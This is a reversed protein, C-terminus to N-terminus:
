KESAQKLGRYVYQLGSSVTLLAVTWLMWDEPKVSVKLNISLLIYAILVLQATNAAKGTLSPAIGTISYILSLLAWGVTVIIDRSIVIITLWIPIWGYVSFMVFSTVMLFKDALPDLFAGLATQQNTHRAILGDLADSAGAIVFVALAADYKNYVLATVFVPLIIIRVFTISNPLNLVTM